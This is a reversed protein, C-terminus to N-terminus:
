NPPLLDCAASHLLPLALLSGLQSGLPPEGTAPLMVDTWRQLIAARLEPSLQERNGGPGGLRVKGALLLM